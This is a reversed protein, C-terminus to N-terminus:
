ATHGWASIRWATPTCLDLLTIGHVSVGRQLDDWASSIDICISVSVRACHVMVPIIDNILYSTFQDKAGDNSM